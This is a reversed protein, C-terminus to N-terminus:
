YILYKERVAMFEDMRPQFYELVERPTKGEEILMPWTKTSGSLTKFGGLVKYEDPNNEHMAQIMHLGAETANFAERDLIEVKVGHCLEGRHKHYQATPTFSYPMFYLGPIGRANLNAALVNQDFYPAGYIEFPIETGRGCSIWTTEAMGLGSYLIAGNLTKMNPSPNVWTLGTEDFYMDRRWGSMPIVELNAGIAFHENFLLALEGVTMGHRTPIPYIATIGGTVDEEAVIGSVRHGGIPNTRDLVVFELGEEKAAQMALAMTGIYTYFRTGIDQIDFVLVDIGELMEPTPKRTKGYLSHIPLGTKEDMGSDVKEDADGRIGHEPSFLAVLNAEPSEYLVDITTRDDSTKGTHNTILGVRKGSLPAFGQRELNDIGLLIPDNGGIQLASCGSLLVSLILAVLLSHINMALGRFPTPKIDMVLLSPKGVLLHHTQKGPNEIRSGGEEM